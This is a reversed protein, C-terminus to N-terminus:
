NTYAITRAQGELACREYDVTHAGEEDDARRALAEAEEQTNPRTGRCRECAWRIRRHHHLTTISVVAGVIGFALGTVIKLFSM